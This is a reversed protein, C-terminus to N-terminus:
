IFDDQCWIPTKPGVNGGFTNFELYEIAESYTMTDDKTLIEICRKVSYILRFTKDDVGIIADDFGDARLFDEEPYVDLIDQLM